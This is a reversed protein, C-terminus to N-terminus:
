RLVGRRREVWGASGCVAEACWRRDQATGADSFYLSCGAGACQRVRLVPDALAGAASHAIAELAHPAADPSFDLHWSGSRRVLQQRGEAGRLLQNIMSVTAAPVPLGAALAEALRLLRSRLRRVDVYDVADADSRLRSAKAWRHYAAADTLRDGSRGRGRGTNVFDLWVADGLLIFEPDGM